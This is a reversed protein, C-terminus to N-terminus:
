DDSRHERQGSNHHIQLNFFIAKALPLLWLTAGVALAMTVALGIIKVTMSVDAIPLLFMFPAFVILIFFGVFFAPGDATDAITFDQGCHECKDKLKLYSKFLEGEGCTGCRGRLASSVPEGQAM